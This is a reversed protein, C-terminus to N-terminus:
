FLGEFLVSYGVAHQHIVSCRPPVHFRDRSSGPQRQPQHLLTYPQVETAVPMRLRLPFHLPKVSGHRRSQFTASVRRRLGPLLPQIFKPMFIVKETWVLRQLHSRGGRHPLLTMAAVIRVRLGPLVFLATFHHFYGPVSLDPNILLAPLDGTGQDSLPY